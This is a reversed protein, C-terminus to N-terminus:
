EDGDTKSAHVMPAGESSSRLPITRGKGSDATRPLARPEDEETESPVFQRVPGRPSEPGDPELRDNPRRGRGSGGGGAGGNNFSELADNPDFAQIQTSLSPPNMPVVKNRPSPGPILSHGHAGEHGHGHAHAQANGGDHVDKKEKKVERKKKKDALAAKDKKRLTYLAHAVCRLPRIGIPELLLAILISALWQAAVPSHFAAAYFMTLFAFVLAGFIVCTYLCTTLWLAASAVVPPLRVTPAYRSSSMLALRNARLAGYFLLLLVDTGGSIILAGYVGVAIVQSLSVTTNSGSHRYEMTGFFLAALYTIFVITSRMKRTVGGKPSASIISFLLHQSNAHRQFAQVFMGMPTTPETSTFAKSPKKGDVRKGFASPTFNLSSFNSADKGFISSTVGGELNQLWKKKADVKHRKEQEEMMKAREVEVERRNQKDRVHSVMVLLIYLIIVAGVSAAAHPTSPDLATQVEEINRPDLAQFMPTTDEIFAAFDTTHSCTCTVMSANASEVACGYTFWGEYETSWYRCSAQKDPKDVYDTANVEIAVSIKDVLNRLPLVTDESYAGCSLTLGNVNSILSSSRVYDHPNRGWTILQVDFYPCTELYTQLTDNMYIAQPMRFTVGGEEPSLSAGSMGIKPSRVSIMKINDTSISSPYQGPVADRLIAQFLRSTLSQVSLSLEKRQLRTTVASSEDRASLLSSLSYAIATDSGSELGTGESQTLINRYFTQAAGITNSNLQCPSFFLPKAASALAYLTSQSLKQRALSYNLYNVFLDEIIATAASCEEETTASGSGALQNAMITVSSQLSDLDDLLKYTNLDPYMTDLLEYNVNNLRRFDRTIGMARRSSGSTLPRVTINSSQVFTRSGWIDIVYGYVTVIYNRAELGASLRVEASDKKTETLATATSEDGTLSYRFQYTFPSDGPDDTWHKLSLSFTTKYETGTKPTALFLGGTPPRNTTFQVEAYGMPLDYDPLGAATKYRVELILGYDVGINLVNPKLVISPETSSSSLTTTDLTLFGSSTKWSYYYYNTTDITSSTNPLYAFGTFSLTNAANIRSLQYNTTNIFVQPVDYEEVLISVSASVEARFDKYVIVTFKYTGPQLTRNTVSLIAEDQYLTDDTADQFCPINTSGLVECQWRFLFPDVTEDPDVSYSADVTFNKEYAVNRDGGQIVAQLSNYTVTVQVVASLSRNGLASSTATITFNYQNGATLTFETLYLKLTQSTTEDLTIIDDTENSVVTWQYELAIDSFCTTLFVEAQLDLRADRTTEM